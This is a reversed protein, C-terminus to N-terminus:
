NEDFLDKIQCGLCKAIAELTELRCQAIQAKRARLITENSLGSLEMLRRVTMRKNKMVTKVKSIVM